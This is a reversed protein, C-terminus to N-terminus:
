EELAAVAARKRENIAEWAAKAMAVAVESDLALAAIESIGEIEAVVGMGSQHKRVIIKPTKM